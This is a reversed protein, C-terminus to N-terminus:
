TIFVNKIYSAVSYIIVKKPQFPVRKARRWKLALFTKIKLAGKEIARIIYTARMLIM